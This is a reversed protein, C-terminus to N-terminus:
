TGAPRGTGGPVGSARRRGVGLPPRVAAPHRARADAPAPLPNLARSTVRRVPHVTSRVRGPAGARCRHPRGRTWRRDPDRRRGPVSRSLTPAMDRCVRPRSPATDTTPSSRASDPPGAGASAGGRSRGATARSIVRNNSGGATGQARPCRPTSRATPTPAGTVDGAAPSTTKAPRTTSRPTTVTRCVSPERDERSGTAAVTVTPVATARPPTSPVTVASPAACQECPHRCQPM